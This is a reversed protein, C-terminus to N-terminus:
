SDQILGAGAAARVAYIEPQLNTAAAYSSRVASAFRDVANAEVFAVMCGGFGAGAQRAGIVGPAALMAQMMSSMAPAGIEYLECAGRFSEDCLRRIAARDGGSLVQALALVRANEEIIFQCRKYVEDGPLERRKAELQELTADRLAAVGLHRAGEECQERRTSYESGCLERKARTDCIVVCLEANLGVPRSSIDRCDLLLACSDRGACSTFQDLIGCNLGVFDCEARLCLQAMRTTDLQWGALAQFVVASACELAASSSLGSGVPVTSQIVGDFGRLALGDDQLAWAVGRVYNSWAGDASREIRDLSFCNESDLNATYVCVNGDDRPRAAIWTDRSIALTLVYGLNYDTHSGMLDVRGPARAVLAARGGFHEEFLGAILRLRETDTDTM